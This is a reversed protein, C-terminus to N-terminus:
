ILSEVDDTLPVDQVKKVFRDYKGKTLAKAYKSMGDMNQGRNIIDQITKRFKPLLERYREQLDDKNARLKTLLKGMGVTPSMGVLEGVMDGFADDISQSLGLNRSKIEKWSDYHIGYTKGKLELVVGELTEGDKMIDPSKFERKYADTLCKNIEDRIEEAKQRSMDMPDSSKLEKMMEPPFMSEDLKIEQAFRQLNFYSFTSDSVKDCLFDIFEQQKEYDLDKISSSTMESATFVVMSGIRGLRGADYSSGVYTISGDDDVINEGNSLLEGIVKVGSLGMDRIKQFIDDVDQSSVCKAVARHSNPMNLSKSDAKLLGSRSNEVYM